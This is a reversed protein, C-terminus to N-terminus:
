PKRACAPVTFSILRSVWQPKAHASGEACGFRSEARVLVSSRPLKQHFGLHLEYAEIGPALWYPGRLRQLRPPVERYDLGPDDGCERCIVEYAEYAEAYGGEPQDAVVCAPQRRLVSICGLHPQASTTTM